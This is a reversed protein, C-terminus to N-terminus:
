DTEIEIMQYLGILLPLFFIIFYSFIFSINIKNTLTIVVEKLLFILFGILISIFLVKFFNENRKFKGSYGMVTFGIIILFFPKLIESLYHLSVESSYLNFKKLSEIHSKYKYFPVFKYNSLSNVINSKNFNLKLEYNDLEYFEDTEINLISVKNLEFLKNKIKGKKAIIIKNENQNINLIKIGDANMNDLNILSINIYNKENKNTINKIWIGNDIFKISYSNSYDKSILNEFIKEFSAAIPNIILLVLIGFFFISVGIPKFIDLISFGMNRMSILENNSILNRFLFAIAIIIIFPMTESIITPIKLFTLLLFTQLGTNDENLLRSIEILNLFIVLLTIFILNLFIYKNSLSFIYLYIKKM